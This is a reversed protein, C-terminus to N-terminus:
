VSRPSHVNGDPPLACQGHRGSRNTRLFLQLCLILLRDKSDEVYPAFELDTMLGLKDCIHEEALDSIEAIVSIDWEIDRGALACLLNHIANPTELVSECNQWM